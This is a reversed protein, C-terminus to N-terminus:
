QADNDPGELDLPVEEYAAVAYGQDRWKKCARNLGELSAAAVKAVAVGRGTEDHGPLYIV